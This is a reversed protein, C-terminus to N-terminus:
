KPMPKVAGNENTRENAPKKRSIAGPSLKDPDSLFLPSHSLFQMKDHVFPMMAALYSNFLRLREGRKVVVSVSAVDSRFNSLLLASDRM